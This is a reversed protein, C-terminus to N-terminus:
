RLAATQNSGVFAPTFVPNTVALVKGDPARLELVCWRAAEPLSLELTGSDALSLERQVEGNAILRLSADAPVGGYRLSLTTEAEVVGTVPESRNPLTLELM